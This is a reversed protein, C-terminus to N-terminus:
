DHSPQSDDAEFTSESTTSVALLRQSTQLPADADPPCQISGDSQEIALVHIGFQRRLDAQRLSQDIAQIPVLLRQVRGATGAAVGSALQYVGEEQDMAALGAHEAILHESMESLQHRVLRHVDSRSVVGLFHEGGDAGTVPLALQGSRSMSSIATYLTDDPRLVPVNPSMMDAAIVLDGAWDTEMAREIEPTSVVGAVRDEDMVVFVPRVGPTLRNGLERLTANLSITDARDRRMLERVTRIELMHVVFDGAHAPSEASTPVQEDNLGWRRGVVYSTVCVLMLPVILGYGGTMEAVMVLAALPVRMSASLVGAMGVAILARRLNEPDSTLSDPAVATVLAGICAGL